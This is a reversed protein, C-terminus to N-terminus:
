ILFHSPLIRQVPVDFQLDALAVSSLNSAVQNGQAQGEFKLPLYTNRSLGVQVGLGGEFASKTDRENTSFLDKTDLYLGGLSYTAHPVFITGSFTGQEVGTKDVTSNNLNENLVTQVGLTLLQPNLNVAVPGSDLQLNAPHLTPSTPPEIRLTMKKGHLHSYFYISFIPFIPRPPVLGLHFIEACRQSDDSYHIKFNSSANEGGYVTKGDILITFNRPDKCDWGQAIRNAMEAVVLQQNTDALNTKDLRVDIYSSAVPAQGVMASGSKIVLAHKPEDAWTLRACCVLSAMWAWAALYRLCGATLSQKQKGSTIM